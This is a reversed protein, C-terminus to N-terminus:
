SELSSNVSRTTPFLVPFCMVDLHQQRNSIPDETISMLRYQELDSVTSLKSDLNRITYAQFADLEDSSVKKLMEITANNSVEIIHKTSEDISKEHVNKYLWNCSRLTKIATKVHNVNVLSRWVVNSKTPRGNVIIYLEPDPLVFGHQEVQNLTELTKNLPLPLFFMTGKCAQLSNYTPVKGTYTGLRVITQYCKARQILQRSLLDLKALEKPITVTQLGNLVCRAPMDGSRVRTKCYHCMYLVQGAVTPQYKLIYAKLEDWVNCEFDDSLSVVSVSKRQHLRECCICTHEPFDYIKKEYGAILAAHVISLETELTPKRLPLDSSKLDEYKEDVDCSLLPRVGTMKVLTQHDGSKLANDIDCIVRHATLADTVNALFRRLIRFHTSAARLIRLASTCSNSTYCVIPHGKLDVVCDHRLKTYHGFPCGFDCEALAQRAEEISGEFAARLTVIAVIEVDTLPKCHQSCEWVVSEWVVSKRGDLGCGTPVQQAGSSCATPDDQFPIGKAVVCEGDDNVPIVTERVHLYAAEYFYPETSQTHCGKGLDDQTKLTISKICRISNLLFGAYKRRLQLSRGILRKTALRVVASRLDQRSLKMGVGFHQSNFQELLNGLMEKDTLLNAQMLRFCKEILLQTPQILSYRTKTVKVRKKYCHYKQFYQLRVSRHTAHYKRFTEKMVEPKSRYATRSAACKPEPNATYYAKAAAKRKEANGRYTVRLAANREVKHAIYYAKKQAKHSCYYAKKQAKHSCYYAKKQAKHSCYYAKSSELKKEPQLKYLAAAAAKKKSPDAKYVSRSRAKLKESNCVYYDRNSESKHVKDLNKYYARKKRESRYPM